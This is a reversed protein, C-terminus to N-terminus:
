PPRYYCYLKCNLNELKKSKTM